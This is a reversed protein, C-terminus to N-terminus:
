GEVAALAEQRPECIALFADFCSLKLVERGSPRLNCCAMKGLTGDAERKMTLLIELMASSLKEVAQFDFV